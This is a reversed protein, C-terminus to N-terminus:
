IHKKFISKSELWASGSGQSASLPLPLGNQM